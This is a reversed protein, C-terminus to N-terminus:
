TRVRSPLTAVYAVDDETNPLNDAFPAGMKDLLFSKILNGLEDFIRIRDLRVDTGDAEVFGQRTPTVEMWGPRRDLRPRRGYDEKYITPM